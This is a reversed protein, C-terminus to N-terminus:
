NPASYSTSRRAFEGSFRLNIWRISSFGEHSRSALKGGSTVWGRLFIEEVEFLIIRNTGREVEKESNKDERKYLRAHTRAHTNKIKIKDRQSFPRPIHFLHFRHHPTQRHFLRSSPNEFNNGSIPNTDPFKSFHFAITSYLTLKSCNWNSKEISCSVRM